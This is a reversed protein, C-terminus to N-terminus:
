RESLRAAIRLALSETPVYDDSRPVDVETRVRAKGVTPTVGQLATVAPHGFAQRPEPRRSDDEREM